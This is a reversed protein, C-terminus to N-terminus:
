HQPVALVGELLLSSDLEDEEIKQIFNGSGVFNVTHKATGADFSESFHM